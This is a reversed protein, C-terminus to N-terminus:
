TVCHEAHPVGVKHVTIGNRYFLMLYAMIASM